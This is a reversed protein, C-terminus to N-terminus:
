PELPGDQGESSDAGEKKRRCFILYYLILAPYPLLAQDFHGGFLSYTSYAVCSLVFLIQLWVVARAMM